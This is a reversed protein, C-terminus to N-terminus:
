FRSEDMSGDGLQYEAEARVSLWLEMDKKYLLWLLVAADIVDKKKRKNARAADKAAWWNM